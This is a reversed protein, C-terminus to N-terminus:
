PRSQSVIRNAINLYEFLDVTHGLREDNISRYSTNKIEKEPIKYHGGRKEGLRVIVRNLHPVVIIYQGKLGRFYHIPKGQNKYVWIHWGYRMNEVGDDTNMSSTKIMENLYWIPIIQKGNLKGDHLILTGLRSFDRATAYLCCFSKEDGSEKDLSWFAQSSAGIPEWIKQYMYDTLTLGTAKELIFGLIQTNGSQYHFRKGPTEIIRLRTVLGYLDSTYYGEAAESLPNKGSEVWDFGASMMLLHRITLGERGNTKFEPIYNCVPEDVNQIKGEDIAIGILLSIVTKSASFSNSVEDITHDGWYEEHVITDNDLVLFAKTEISKLYQNEAGTLKTNKSADKIIQVPASSKPIANVPFVDLDYIGPGMKGILYTKTIGSYLYFRGSLVIFLNVILIIAGFIYATYKFFKKVM